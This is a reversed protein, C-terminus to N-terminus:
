RKASPCDLSLSWIGHGIHELETDLKIVLHNRAADRWRRANWLGFVAFYEPRGTQLLDRIFNIGLVCRVAGVELSVVQSEDDVFRMSAHHGLANGATLVGVIRLLERRGSYPEEVEPRRAVFQLIAEVTVLSVEDAEIREVRIM